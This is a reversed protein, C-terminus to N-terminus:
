PDDPEGFGPFSYYTNLPQTSKQITDWYRRGNSGGGINQLMVGAISHILSESPAYIRERGNGCDRRHMIYPKWRLWVAAFYRGECMAITCVCAHSAAVAVGLRNFGGFIERIARREASLELASVPSDKASLEILIEGPRGGSTPDDNPLNGKTVDVLKKENLLVSQIKSTPGLLIDEMERCRRGEARLMDLSAPIKDPLPTFEM